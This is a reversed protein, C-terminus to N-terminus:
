GAPLAPPSPSADATGKIISLTSNPDRDKNSTAPVVTRLVPDTLINRIQGNSDVTNHDAAVIDIRDSASPTDFSIVTSAAAVRVVRYPAVDGTAGSTQDVFGHIPGTVTATFNAGSGTITPYVGLLGNRPAGVSDRLMERLVTSLEKSGLTGQRILDTSLVQEFASWLVQSFQSM